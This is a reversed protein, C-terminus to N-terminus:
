KLLLFLCLMMLKELPIPMAMIIAMAMALLIYQCHIDEPKATEWTNGNFFPDCVISVDGNSLLFTSHGYYTLTVAM